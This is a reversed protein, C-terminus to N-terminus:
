GPNSHVFAIGLRSPEGLPIRHDNRGYGCYPSNYPDNCYLSWRCAQLLSRPADPELNWANSTAIFLDECYNPPPRFRPASIRRVRPINETLVVRLAFGPLKDDPLGDVAALM